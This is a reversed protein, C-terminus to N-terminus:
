TTLVLLSLFIPEKNLLNAFFAKLYALPVKDEKLKLIHFKIDLIVLM